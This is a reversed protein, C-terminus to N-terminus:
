PAGGPFRGAAGVAGAEGGVGDQDGLAQDDASVGTTLEAIKTQLRNIAPNVGPLSRLREYDEATIKPEVVALLITEADIRSQNLQGTRPNTAIRQIHLVEARSLGRVYFLAGLEPAEVPVRQRERRELAALLEAMPRVRLPEGRLAGNERPEGQPPEPMPPGGDPANEAM